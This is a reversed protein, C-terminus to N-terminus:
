FSMNDVSVGKEMEFDYENKRINIESICNLM